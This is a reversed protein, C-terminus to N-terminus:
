HGAGSPGPQLSAASRLSGTTVDRPPVDYKQVSALSEGLKRRMKTAAEGLAQLVQAKGNATVQEEALLDGSRCNVARLGLVYQSGQSSISGEITAASATRQCVERALKQTLRADKPQTMLVLTEAIRSDPLLSLFPSQECNRRFGRGCRATSSPIAPLTPSIRWCSPTRTPSNIPNAGTCISGPRPQRWWCSRRRAALAARKTLSCGGGCREGQAAGGELDALMEAATQYRRGRDKELAKRIIAALKPPVDPNLKVARNLIADFIVATTNGDFARQGTAMEYLVAGFSFLDTRADLPEGRAQEPSMYAATGLALDPGTLSEPPAGPRARALKALGFDLIKAQGETTVFLNAPKIDRHIIDRAHAAELGSAIQAAWDLLADLPVRQGGIRERLTQAKWCSWRWFPVAAMRASKM